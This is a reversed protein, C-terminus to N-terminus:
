NLVVGLILGGILSFLINCAILFRSSRHPLLKSLSGSRVHLCRPAEQGVIQLLVPGVYKEGCPLSTIKKTSNYGM